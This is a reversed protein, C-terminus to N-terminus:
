GPCTCYALSHGVHRTSGTQVGGGVICILFLCHCYFVSWFLLCEYDLSFPALRLCDNITLYELLNHKLSITFSTDIFGLM